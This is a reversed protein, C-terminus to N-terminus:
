LVQYNPSKSATLEFSKPTRSSNDTNTTQSCSHFTNTSIFIQLKYSQICVDGRERKRLYSLMETTYINGKLCKSRNWQEVEITPLSNSASVRITTPTLSVPASRTTPEFYASSEILILNGLSYGLSRLNHATTLSSIREDPNLRAPM